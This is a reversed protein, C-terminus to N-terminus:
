RAPAWHSVLEDVDWGALGAGAEYASELFELLATRPSDATRVEDYGLRAQHSPGTEVWVAQEPELPQQALGAPEPSAYSYYTPVRVKADGAWFGFSIVEHSYAERTVASATEAVPAPRGSFRTVALDFGHWFLQVPSTKGLYWGAFEEFVDSTWSLIRWFSAACERDYSAHATDEAFPTTTAIGYPESRISVEIGLDRLMAFLADDFAAVSLGDVLEFSEVAGDSTRVFLRHDVFDFDLQFVVGNPARMARTTLGRADLFLTVHWWHNRPPALALRLKGVIQLWLHLTDKTAEWHALPLEPLETRAAPHSAMSM